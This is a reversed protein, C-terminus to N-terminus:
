TRFFLVSTIVLVCLVFHNTPTDIHVDTHTHTGTPSSFSVAVDGTLDAPTYHGNLFVSFAVVVQSGSGAFALPLSFIWYSIYETKYVTMVYM